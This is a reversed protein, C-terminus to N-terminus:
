NKIHIILPRFKILESSMAVSGGMHNENRFDLLEVGMERDLETIALSWTMMM